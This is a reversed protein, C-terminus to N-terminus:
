GPVEDRRGSYVSDHPLVESNDSVRMVDARKITTLAVQGLPIGRGNTLVTEIKLVTDNADTISGSICSGNRALVTYGRNVEIMGSRRSTRGGM